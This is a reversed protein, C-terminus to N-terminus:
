QDLPLIPGHYVVPGTPQGTPSGGPPELSVALAGATSGPATLDLSTAAEPDVLGLSQPPADGAVLWLEYAQNPSEALELPRITMRSSAPDITVMLAPQQDGAGLVAVYREALPPPLYWASTAIYLLCAAALAGLTMSARRWFIVAALPVVNSPQPAAAPWAPRQRVAPGLEDQIRRWVEAPPEVPAIADALPALRREWAEVLRIFEENHHLLDQARRRDVLDLTGLAYEAALAELDSLDDTM